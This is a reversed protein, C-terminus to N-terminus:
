RLPFTDTCHVNRRWLPLQWPLFHARPCVLVHVDHHSNHTALISHFPWVILLFRLQAFRRDSNLFRSRLVAGPITCPISWFWVLIICPRLTVRATHYLIGTYFHIICHAAPSNKRPIIHIICTDFGQIIPILSTNYTNFEARLDLAKMLSRAIVQCGPIM